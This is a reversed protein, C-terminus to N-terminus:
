AVYPANDYTKLRGLWSHEFIKQSPNHTVVQEYYTKARLNFDALLQVPDLANIAAISKPGISGDDLVRAARQMIKSGMSGTNVDLDYVANAIHQDTIDGLRKWFNDMYFAEVMAALANILALNMNLHRAWAYYAGSGYAPMNVMSDICTRIYKFGGWKPWSAPAIGRYTPLTCVGNVVINGRDAPNFNVGGENSNTRAFALHFDSM